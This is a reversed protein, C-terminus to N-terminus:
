FYDRYVPGPTSKSALMPGATMGGSEKEQSTWDEKSPCLESFDFDLFEFYFHTKPDIKVELRHGHGFDTDTSALCFERLTKFPRLIPSLYILTIDVSM